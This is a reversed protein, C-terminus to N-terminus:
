FVTNWSTNSMRYLLDAKLKIPCVGASNNPFFQHNAVFIYAFTSSKKYTLSTDLRHQSPFAVRVQNFNVGRWFPQKIVKLLSLFLSNWSHM